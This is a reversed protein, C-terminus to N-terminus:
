SAYNAQVTFSINGHCKIGFAHKPSKSSCVPFFCYENKFWLSYIQWPYLSKYFPRFSKIFSVHFCILRNDPYKSKESQWGM